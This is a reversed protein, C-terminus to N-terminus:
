AVILATTTKGSGPPGAFLLHPLEQKRKLLLGLREKVGAQDAVDELRLPRYKEVWM